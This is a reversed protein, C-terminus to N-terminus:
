PRDPHCRTRPTSPDIPPCARAAPERESVAVRNSVVVSVAIPIPQPGFDDHDDHVLTIKLMTAGQQRASIIGNEKNLRRWTVIEASVPVILTTREDDDQLDLERGASDIFVISGITDGIPLTIQGESAGSSTVHAVQTGVRLEVRAIAVEGRPGAPEDGCGTIAAAAALPVLIRTRARM